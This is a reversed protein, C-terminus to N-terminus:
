LGIARQGIGHEDAPARGALLRTLLDADLRALDTLECLRPTGATASRLQEDADTPRHLRHRNVWIAAMGASLAGVIDTTWRDGVYVVHAPPLGLSDAGAHFIVAAPKAVGVDGSFVAGPVLDDLGAAALKRRQYPGDSNSVIGIPIGAARLRALM